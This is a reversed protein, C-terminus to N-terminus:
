FSLHIRKCTDIGMSEGGQFSLARAKGLQGLDPLFNGAAEQVSWTEEEKLVESSMLVTLAGSPHSPVTRGM